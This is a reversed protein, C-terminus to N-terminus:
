KNNRCNIENSAEKYTKYIHCENFWENGVLYETKGNAYIRYNEVSYGDYEDSRACMNNKCYIFWDTENSYWDRNYGAEYIPFVEEGIKFISYIKTEGNNENKLFKVGCNSCYNDDISVEKSHCISCEEYYDDEHGQHVIVYGHKREEM